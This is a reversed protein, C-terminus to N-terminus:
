KPFPYGVGLTPLLLLKYIEIKKSYKKIKHLSHAIASKTVANDEMKYLLLLEQVYYSQLNQRMMSIDGWSDKKFIAHTITELLTLVDLEGGYFQSNSLRNFSEISLLRYLMYAQEQLM